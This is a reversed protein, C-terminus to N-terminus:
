SEDREKYIIRCWPSLPNNQSVKPNFVPDHELTIGETKFYRNFGGPACVTMIYGRYRDTEM